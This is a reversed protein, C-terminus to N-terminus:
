LLCLRERVLVGVQARRLALNRAFTLHIWADDLPFALQGLQAYVAGLYILGSAACLLLLLSTRRM